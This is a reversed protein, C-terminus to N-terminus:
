NLQDSRHDCLAISTGAIRLVMSIHIDAAYPIGHHEATSEVISKETEFISQTVMGKSTCYM